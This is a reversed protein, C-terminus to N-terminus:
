VDTLREIRQGAVGALQAASVLEPAIEMLPRLVFARQSLRPHPLTLLPDQLSLAGYLLLDLDLTRPANRYPRLRGALIEIQQLRTLLEYANMGTAVSVVANIYDPGPADLAASGFWGSRALLRTQPLAAIQAVAAALTRLPEGLNGGLGIYAIQWDPPCLASVGADQGTSM